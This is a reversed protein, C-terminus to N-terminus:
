AIRVQVRLNGVRLTYVGRAVRKSARLTTSTGRAVVKGKRTLRAKGNAKLTCRVSRRKTGVTKCTVKAAYGRPGRDGKDGKPGPAGAVIVPAPVPAAAVVTGTGSVTATAVADGLLKVTGTRAGTASPAFRVRVTCSEGPELTTEACGDEAILFDDGTTVARSPTVPFAGGATFTVAKAAGVTGVTQGGFDVAAASLM